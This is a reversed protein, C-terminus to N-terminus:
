YDGGNRDVGFENAGTKPEIVGTGRVGSVCCPAALRPMVKSKLWCVANASETVPYSFAWARCRPDRECRTACQAPDGSRMPFSAYDGGARDLRGPGPTTGRVVPPAVVPWVGVLGWGRRMGAERERRGVTRDMNSFCAPAPSHRTLPLCARGSLLASTRSRSWRPIGDHLVAFKAKQIKSEHQQGGSDEAYRDRAPETEGGDDGIEDGADDEARIRKRPKAR